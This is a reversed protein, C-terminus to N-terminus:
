RAFPEEPAPRRPRAIPAGRRKVEVEDPEFVDIGSTTLGAREVAGRVMNSAMVKHAAEVEFVVVFMKKRAM